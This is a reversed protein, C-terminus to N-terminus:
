YLQSQGVAQAFLNAVNVKFPERFFLEARDNFRRDAVVERFFRNIFNFLHFLDSFYCVLQQSIATLISSYLCTFLYLEGVPHFPCNWHFVFNIVCHEFSILYNVHEVREHVRM